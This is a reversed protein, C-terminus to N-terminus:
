SFIFPLIYVFAWFFKGLIGEMPLEMKQSSKYTYMDITIVAIKKKKDIKMDTHLRIYSSRYFSKVHTKRCFSLASKSCTKFFLIKNGTVPLPQFLANNGGIHRFTFFIAWFNAM